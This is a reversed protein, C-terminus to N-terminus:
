LNIVFEIVEDDNESKVTYKKPNTIKMEVDDILITIVCSNNSSDIELKTVKNVQIFSSYNPLHFYFKTNETTNYIKNM